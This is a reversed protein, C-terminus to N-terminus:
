KRPALCHADLIFVELMSYPPLLRMSSACRLGSTLKQNALTGGTRFSTSVGRLGYIAVLYLFRMWLENRFLVASLLNGLVLAGLHNEAYPFRGLATMIIGALNLLIIFTFFKRYTNFWLDALVWRPVKAKTPLPKKPVDTKLATANISGKRVAPSTTPWSLSLDPKSSNPTIGSPVQSPVTLQTTNHNFIQPGMYAVGPVTPEASGDYMGKEADDVSDHGFDRASHGQPHDAMARTHRQVDLRIHHSLRAPASADLCFVSLFRQCPHAPLTFVDMPDTKNLVEIGLGV